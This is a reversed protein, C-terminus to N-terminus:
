QTPKDSMQNITKNINEQTNDTSPVTNDVGTANPVKTPKPM